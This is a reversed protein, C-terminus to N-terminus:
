RQQASEELKQMIHMTTTYTMWSSPLLWSVLSSCDISMSLISPSRPSNRLSATSIFTLLLTVPLAAIQTSSFERLIAKFQSLQALSAMFFQSKRSISNVTLTTPSLFGEYMNKSQVLNLVTNGSKDKWFMLRQNHTQKIWDMLMSFAEEQNNKLALHLATEGRATVQGICDVFNTLLEHLIDLRGHIAACHLLTKGDRDKLKYLLPDCALLEKVVAIHGNESALNMVTFGEQGLEWALSPKHILITRVFNLHGLRAAIHLPTDARTLLVDELLDINENLLQTLEGANGLLAATYLRKIDDNREIEQHDHLMIKNYGSITTEFLSVDM